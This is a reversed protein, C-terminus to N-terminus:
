LSSFGNGRLLRGLGEGKGVLGEGEWSAVEGEGHHSATSLTLFVCVQLSKPSIAGVGGWGEMGVNKRVVLFGHWTQIAEISYSTGMNKVWYNIDNIGSGEGKM